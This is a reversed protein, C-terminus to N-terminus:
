CSCVCVCVAALILQCLSSILEYTFEVVQMGNVDDM